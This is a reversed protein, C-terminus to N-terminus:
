ADNERQGTGWQGVPYACFQHMGMTQKVHQRNFWGCGNIGHRLGWDMILKGEIDGDPGIRADDACVAHNGPGDDLGLLGTSSLREFTRGVQVAIGCIFQGCLATRLGEWTYILLPDAPLFLRAEADFQQTQHRWVMDRGCSTYSCFGYKRAAYYGDILASGNDRGNNVLSYQYPGSRKTLSTNGGAYAARWAANAQMWGQCSGWPGQDEEGEGPFESSKRRGPVQLAKICQQLTWVAVTDEFAKFGDAAATIPKPITLCRRYEGFQDEFEFASADM